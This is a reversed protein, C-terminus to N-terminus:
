WAFSNFLVPDLEVKNGTLVIKRPMMEEQKGNKATNLIFNYTLTQNTHRRSFTVDVTYVSDKPAKDQLRLSKGRGLPQQDGVLEIFDYPPVFTSDELQPKLNVSFTIKTTQAHGASVSVVLFFLYLLISKFKM